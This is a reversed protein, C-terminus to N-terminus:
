FRSNKYIKMLKLWVKHLPCMGNNNDDCRRSKTIPSRCIIAFKISDKNGKEVIIQMSHIKYSDM